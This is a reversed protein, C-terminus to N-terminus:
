IFKVPVPVFTLLLILMCSWGIIKESITLEPGEEIQPHGVMLLAFTIVIWLIWGQFMFSLIVLGLVSAWGVYKQKEGILSYLIHGGDLQGIPILNLSTILFGVWGAWAYPSLFIDHGPPINGHFVKVFFTFLLSDGFIPITGDGKPLPGVESLYIGIIVAALSIIFGPIPGMTGIYFLAKRHPIKSRTKIVAGMTGIPPVPIPIFYPLTARVGFHKAAFYHGFEHFLLITLLTISYPLGS